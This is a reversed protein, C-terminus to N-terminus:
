IVNIWLLVTTCCTALLMNGRVHRRVVIAGTGWHTRTQGRVWVRNHEGGGGGGGGGGWVGVEMPRHRLQLARWQM